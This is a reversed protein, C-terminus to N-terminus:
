SRAFLFLIFLGVTLHSQKEEGELVAASILNERFLSAQHSALKCLRISIIHVPFGYLHSFLARSYLSYKIFAAYVFYKVFDQDKRVAKYNYIIM